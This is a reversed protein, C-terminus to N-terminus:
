VAIKEKILKIERELEIVKHELIFYDEKKVVVEYLRNIRDNTEMISKNTDNLRSHIEDIRGNTGDLRRSMDTVQATLDDIRKNTVGLVAKTESVDAKIKDLEPLIMEEIASEVATLIEM